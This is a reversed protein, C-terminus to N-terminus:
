NREPVKISNTKIQNKPAAKLLICKFLKAFPETRICDDVLFGFVLGMFGIKAATQWIIFFLSVRYAQITNM